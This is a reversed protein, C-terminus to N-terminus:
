LSGMSAQVTKPNFPDASNESIFIYPIGFWDAIRIITGLNGPDQMDDLALSFNVSLTNEDWQNKPMMAILMVESPNSLSSIKKLEHDEVPLILNEPLNFHGAFENLWSQTAILKETEFHETLFELVTKTGEAVFRQHQYRYKKQKLSNVYKEFVKTLM